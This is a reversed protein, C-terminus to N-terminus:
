LFIAMPLVQVAPAVVIPDATTLQVGESTRMGAILNQATEPGAAGLVTRRTLNITDRGTIIRTVKGVLRFEGARLYENTMTSYYESSATVVARLGSPTELLLDHVPAKLIDEAMRQMLHIGIESGPANLSASMASLTEMTRQQAPPTGQGSRRGSSGSKQARRAQQLVEETARLQAQRHEEVYPIISSLFGLVEELPNGLYGGFMEVLDGSRIDTLQEGRILDILQDDERLYQYLLNFLSAATHHRETKQEFVTEDRRETSGETGLEGGPLHPLLFRIGARGRLVRERAGTEQKTEEQHSSVGGELHALFSVMMPVDLYIPHVLSYGRQDTSM